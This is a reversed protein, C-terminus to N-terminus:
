VQTNMQTYHRELIEKNGLTPGLRKEPAIPVLDQKM